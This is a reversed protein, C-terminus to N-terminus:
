NAGRRAGGAHAPRRGSPHAGRGGHAQQSFTTPHGPRFALSSPSPSPVASNTNWATQRSSPPVIWSPHQTTDLDMLPSSHQSIPPPGQVKNRAAAEIEEPDKWYDPDQAAAALIPDELPDPPM